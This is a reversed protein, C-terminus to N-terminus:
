IAALAGHRGARLAGGVFGLGAFMLAWAAPEPVTGAFVEFGSPGTYDETFDFQLSYSQGITTAITQSFVDYYGTAVGGFDLAPVSTGDDYTGALSGQAAPTFTWTGGLLNPGTGGLYLGNNTSQEYSPVQYGGFGITTAASTAVFTLDYPTDTQVAPNILSLLTTASASSAGGAMAAGAILAAALVKAKM